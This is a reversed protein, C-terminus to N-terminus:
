RFVSAGVEGLISAGIGWGMLCYNRTVVTVVEFRVNKNESTLM